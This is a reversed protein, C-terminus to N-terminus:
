FNLQNSTVGEDALLIKIMPLSGTTRQFCLRNQREPYRREQSVIPILLLFCERHASSILLWTNQQPPPQPPPPSGAPFSNSRALLCPHESAWPSLICPLYLVQVRGRASLSYSQSVFNEKKLGLKKKLSSILLAIGKVLKNMSHPSM